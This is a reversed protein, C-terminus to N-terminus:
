ELEPLRNLAALVGLELGVCCRNGADESRTIWAFISSWSTSSSRRQASTESVSVKVREALQCALASNKRASWGEKLATIRAPRAPRGLSPTPSGSARSM